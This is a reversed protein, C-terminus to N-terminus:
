QSYQPMYNSRNRVPQRVPAIVKSVKGYKEKLEERNKRIEVDRRKKEDLVNKLVVSLNFDSKSVYASNFQAAINMIERNLEKVQEHNGSAYLESSVSKVARIAEKFKNIQTQNKLYFRYDSEHKDLYEKLESERGEGIFKNVAKNIEELEDLKEYYKQASESRTGTPPAVVFARTIPLKSLTTFKDEAKKEVLGTAQLIEDSINLINRGTGATYALVFRELRAPSIGVADGLKKMIETTDDTYQLEPPLAEQGRGVIPRGTFAEKNAFQEVLPTLATPFVGTPESVPSFESFLSKALDKAVDPDNKVAWDLFAEVSTGFLVGYFGKPVPMFSDTLPIRVNFFLNKRWAPLNDYLLKTEKDDDNNNNLWNLVTLPVITASGIALTRGIHQKDLSIGINEAHRIRANLFAYLPSISRTGAGQVSYDGSINRGEQMAEFVDGTKLYAKRFAGVRTGLETARGFDAALKFVGDWALYRQSLTKMHNHSDRANAVSKIIEDTNALFSLDSGSALFKQYLEDKKAAAAIGKIFHYPNYGYKSYFTGSLQDRAINRFGFTPDYVVAGARLVQVPISFLKMAKSYQDYVGFFSDYHEKPIQFYRPKGDKWVTVIEANKPKEYTVAFKTVLEGEESFVRVPKVVRAPIEQVLKRDVTRLSEVITDLATNKDAAVILDYVNKFMSEVPSLIERQSGRIKKVPSPSTDRLVNGVSPLSGKSEYEDFFRKFPVYYRNNEKIAALQEDNIKGSDRYYQLIADNFKTLDNRFARLYEEGFMEEYLKVTQGAIENSTTAAESLKNKHLEINRMATLYGEHEKLTGEKAMQGFIKMLGPVDNLIEVDNGKRLFPHNEIAQRVKGQTGLVSLVQLLPNREGSLQGVQAELRKTLDKMPKLANVVNYYLKGDLAEKVGDLFSKKEERKITSETVQRPDQQGFEKFSARATEFAKRLNPNVDMLNEFLNYFQPAKERAFEPRIVYHKAFEAVGEIVTKQPYGTETLMGKLEQRLEYRHLISNVVEEGYKRRLTNLLKARSEPKNKYRGLHITIQREVEAGKNYKLKETLQFVNADIDHGVEHVLTDLDNINRVRIIGSDPFFIGLARRKFRKMLGIRIDKGEQKELDSAFQKGIDRLTKVDDLDSGKFDPNVKTPIPLESGAVQAQIGGGGSRMGRDRKMTIRREMLDIVGRKGETIAKRQSESIELGAAEARSLVDQQVLKAEDQKGLMTDFMKRMEPSIKLDIPSGKIASYVEKLWEKFQDFVKKLQPTPAIGDRFYREGARAFMEEHSRSWAGTFEPIKAGDKFVADQLAKPITGEAKLNNLRKTESKLWNEVVTVQEQWKAKQEPVASDRMEYLTRRGYHSFEHLVTSKNANEFIHMVADNNKTFEIAGQKSQFLPFGQEMATKRMAATIPLSHVSPRAHARNWGDAVRRADEPTKEDSYWQPREKGSTHVLLVETAGPLRGVKAIVDSATVTEKGVSAGFKKGFKNAYDVLIKDYFGKMGEGGVKLEVGSYSKAAGGELDRSMKAALDKGVYDEFKEKPVDSAIRQWSGNGGKVQVEIQFLDTKGQRSVYVEDVQKSLDYRAAQQEGTTWAVEDFGNEVAYRVARRFALEHWTSKFPANPVNSKHKEIHAFVQEWAERETDHGFSNAFDRFNDPADAFWSMTGHNNKSRAVSYGLGEATEKTPVGIAYGEKRGKQHWDSQIEELFMVRKGDVERENFRIHALINPEDFHTSKFTAGESYLPMKENRDALEDAYKRNMYTEVIEGNEDVVDYTTRAGGNNEVVRLQGKSYKKREPLTLLLERYSGEKAGPEQYSAFKPAGGTMTTSAREVAQRKNKAEVRTVYKGDADYVEFVASMGDKPLRGTEPTAVWGKSKERSIEGLVREGVRVENERLYDLVEQRTVSPKSKLFEDLGTWALEEKKVGPTQTFKNLLQQGNWKEQKLEEVSKTLQSYFPSAQKNMEDQYLAAHFSQVSRGAIESAEKRNVFKGDPLIFGDMEWTSKDSSLYKMQDDLTMEDLLSAHFDRKKARYVTDGVKVAVGVFLPKGNEDTLQLLADKGVEEPTSKKVLVNYAEEKSLGLAKARTEILADFVPLLAEAEEKGRTAKLQARLTERSPKPQESKQQEIGLSELIRLHSPKAPMGREKNYTISGNITQRIEAIEDSTFSYDLTRGSSHIPIQGLKGDLKDRLESEKPLQWKLEEALVSPLRVKRPKEDKAQEFLSEEKPKEKEFMTGELQKSLPINSSIAKNPQKAQVDFMVGQEGAKTQVTKVPKGQTGFEETPFDTARRWEDWTKKGGRYAEVMESINEDPPILEGFRERGQTAERVLIAKVEEVLKGKDKGKDVIIKDLADVFRQKSVGLESFWKPFTSAQGGGYGGVIEGRAKAFGQGGEGELRRLGGGVLENKWSKAEAKMREAEDQVTSKIEDPLRHLPEEILKDAEPKEVVGLLEKAEEPKMKKLESVTYGAEVLDRKQKTKPQEVSQTETSVTEKKRLLIAFRERTEAYPSLGTVGGDNYRYPIITPKLAKWEPHKAIEIKAGQESSYGDIKSRSGKPALEWGEGAMVEDSPRKRPYLAAPREAVSLPEPTSKKEARTKFVEPTRGEYSEIAERDLQGKLIEVQAEDFKKQAVLERGRGLAEDRRVRMAEVQEPTATKGFTIADETFKFDPLPTTTEAVGGKMASAAAPKQPEQIESLTTGKTVKAGGGSALEELTPLDKTAEAIGSPLEFAKETVAPERLGAEAEQESLKQAYMREINKEATTLEQGRSKKETIRKMASRAEIGVQSVMGIGGGSLGGKLFADIYKDIAEPSTLEVNPDVAKVGMEEVITQALETLAEAGFQKLGETGVRKIIGGTVAKAIDPKFWKSLLRVQPAAELAGALAGYGIAAPASTKGTREYQDGYISGAEMGTSSAYAGLGAGITTAKALLDKAATESMGRAMARKVFTGAVKKAAIAGAGGTVLSPLIMLGNEGIAEIAYRLVDEADQINKYSGITPQSKQAEATAKMYGELGFKKLGELGAIDGALGTLGYGLAKLNKYGRAVDGVFQESIGVRKEEPISKEDSANKPLPINYPKREASSLSSPQESLIQRQREQSRGFEVKKRLAESEPTGPLMPREAETVVEPLNFVGEGTLTREYVPLGQETRSSPVGFRQVENTKRNNAIMKGQETSFMGTAPSKPQKFAPISVLAPDTIRETIPRTDQEVGKSKLYADPNFGGKKALYTDPNFAM